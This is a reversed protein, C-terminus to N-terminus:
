NNEKEKIRKFLPLCIYNELARDFDELSECACIKKQMVPECYVMSPSIDYKRIFTNFTEIFDFQSLLDINDKLKTNCIGLKSYDFIIKLLESKMVM